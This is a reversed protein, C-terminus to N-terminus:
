ILYAKAEEGPNPLGAIRWIVLCGGFLNYIDAKSLSTARCVQRVSPSAGLTLFRDRVHRIVRWHRETLQGVAEEEAIARGLEESWSRPDLLFGDQDFATRVASGDRPNMIDLQHM